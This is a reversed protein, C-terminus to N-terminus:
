DGANTYTYRIRAGYFINDTSAACWVLAYTYLANDIVAVSPPVTGSAQKRTGSNDNGVVLAGSMQGTSSQQRAIQVTPVKGNGSSYWFVLTQMKAGHPLNLGTSFCSGGSSYSLQEARSAYETGSFEPRLADPNIGHYGVKATSYNFATDTIAQATGILAATGAAAALAIRWDQMSGERHISL